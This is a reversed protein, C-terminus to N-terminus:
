RTYEEQGTKDKRVELNWYQVWCKAGLSKYLKATHRDLVGWMDKMLISNNHSLTMSYGIHQGPNTKALDYHGTLMTIVIM